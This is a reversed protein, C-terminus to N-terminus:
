PGKAISKIHILPTFMHIHFLRGGGRVHRRWYNRLLLFVQSFMVKSFSSPALVALTWVGESQATSTIDAKKKKWVYLLDSSVWLCLRTKLETEGTQIDWRTYPEM